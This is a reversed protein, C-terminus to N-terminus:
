KIKYKSVKLVKMGIGSGIGSRIGSWNARWNAGWIRRNKGVLETKPRYL